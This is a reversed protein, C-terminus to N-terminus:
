QVWRSHEPHVASRIAEVLQSPSLEGLDRADPVLEYMVVSHGRPSIILVRSAPWEALLDSVQDGPAGDSTAGVILVDPWPPTRGLAQTSVPPEAIVEMDPEGSIAQALIDRLMKPADRILVRINPM